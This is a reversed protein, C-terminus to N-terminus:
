TSSAVKEIEELARIHDPTKMHADCYYRNEGYSVDVRRHISFSTPNLQVLSAPLNMPDADFRLGNVQVPDDVINFKTIVSSIKDFSSFLKNISTEFDVVVTSQYIVKPETQPERFGVNKSIVLVDTLLAEADDTSSSVEVVLADNHIHLKTINIQKNSIVLKGTGFTVIGDGRSALDPLEHFSYRESLLQVIDPLHLGSMPRVEDASVWWAMRGLPTDVLEM